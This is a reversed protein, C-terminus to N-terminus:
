PSMQLGAGLTPRIFESLRGLLSSGVVLTDGPQLYVPPRVGRAIKTLDLPCIKQGEATERVLFSNEARAAGSLGQALAVARLTDVRLGDRIEFAGPRRVYGLVYFYQEARPPITIIDGNGVKFNLVLNGEDVLQRLDITVAKRGGTQAAAPQHAATLAADVGLELAGDEAPSQGLDPPQAVANGSRVMLLLDGAEETLGGAKALMALVTSSNTTLYYVGPKTVGGTVVVACSQHETVTVTVQPDKIYRGAYAAKITEELGRASLGVAPIGGVWPLTIYGDQSVTRTLAATKGPSELAFVGVELVDGPGLLYDPAEEGGVESKWAALAQALREMRTQQDSKDPEV